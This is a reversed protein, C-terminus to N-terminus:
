RNNAVVSASFSIRAFLTMLSERRQHSLLSDQTLGEPSRRFWASPGSPPPQPPRINTSILDIALAAVQLAM